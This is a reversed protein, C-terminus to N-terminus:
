FYLVKTGGELTVGHGQLTIRLQGNGIGRRNAIRHHFNGTHIYMKGVEYECYEPPPIIRNHTYAHLEEETIDPWYEMGGDGDPLQLPLTFSFPSHWILPFTIFKWPEDIHIHGQLDSAEPTFIHFGPLAIGRPHHYTTFSQGFQRYCAALLPTFGALLVPNEEDAVKPYNMPEDQYTAAGLTYFKDRPTWHRHHAVVEDAWWRAEQPSIFDVTQIIEQQM